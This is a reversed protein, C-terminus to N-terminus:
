ARGGEEDRKMWAAVFLALTIKGLKSRSPPDAAPREGFGFGAGVQEASEGSLTLLKEIYAVYQERLKVSKPDTKLYYDRDPLGLGGARLEVIVLSSDLADQGGIWPHTDNAMDIGSVVFRFCKCFLFIYFDRDFIQWLM